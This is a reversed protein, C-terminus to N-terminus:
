CQKAMFTQSKFNFINLGIDHQFDDQVSLLGLGKAATFTALSCAALREFASPTGCFLDKM